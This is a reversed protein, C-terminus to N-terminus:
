DGRNTRRIHFGLDLQGQGDSQRYDPFHVRGLELLTEKGSETESGDPLKV